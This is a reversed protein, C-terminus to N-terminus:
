GPVRHPYVCAMYKRDSQGNIVTMALPYRGKNDLINPDAGADLLVEVVDYNEVELATLLPTNGGSDQADLNIGRDILERAIDPRGSIAAQHLLTSGNDSRHTLDANDVLEDFTERDGEVVASEIDTRSYLNDSGNDSSM